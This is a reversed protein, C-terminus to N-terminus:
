QVEQWVGAVHVQAAHLVCQVFLTRLGGVHRPFSFTHSALVLATPPELCQASSGWAPMGACAAFHGCAVAHARTAQGAAVSGAWCCSFLAQQQNWCPCSLV